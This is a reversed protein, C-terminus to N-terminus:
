KIVIRLAAYWSALGNQYEFDILCSSHVQGRYYPFGLPWLQSTTTRYSGRRFSKKYVLWLVPFIILHINKTTINMRTGKELIYKPAWEPFWTKKPKSIPTEITVRYLNQTWLSSYLFNSYRMFHECSFAFFIFVIKNIRRIWATKTMTGITIYM